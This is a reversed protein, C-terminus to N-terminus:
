MGTCNKLIHILENLDSSEGASLRQLMKIADELDVPIQSNPSVFLDIHYSVKKDPMFGGEPSTDDENIEYKAISIPSRGLIDRTKFTLFLVNGNDYILHGSTHYEYSISGAILQNIVLQYDTGEFITNEKKAEILEVRDPDYEIILELGHITYPSSLTVPIVFTELPNKALTIPDSQHRTRKRKRSHNDPWNGTIDGLRVATFNIESRDEKLDVITQTSAYDIEYDNIPVSWHACDTITESIFAWHLNDTNLETILGASYRAVMSTDMSSTDANLSVDAAILQYCGLTELGVISRALKSADMPSISEDMTDPIRNASIIYDGTPIDTLEYQGQSDTQTELTTPGTLIIDVKDIPFNDKFYSVKGSLSFRVAEVNVTVTSSISAETDSLEIYIQCTGYQNKQLTVTMTLEVTGTLGPVISYTNDPNPTLGSGTFTVGTYAILSNNSTSAQLLLTKSDIDSVTIQTQTSKNELMELSLSGVLIEPPDNVNVVTLSFSDSITANELDSAKVKIHYQGLDENSPTGSFIAGDPNFTLWSPLQQGNTQQATFTLTDNEDIDKFADPIAYEFSADEQITQSVLPNDIVPPDNKPLVTITITAANSDATGDNAKFTLIQQGSYDPDPTYTFEGTNNNIDLEGSPQDVISFTLINTEDIDSAQLVYTGSTDEDLSLNGDLAIPPDNYDYLRILQAAAINGSNGSDFAADALIDVTVLGQNKPVVLCNYRDDSGSFQDVTGNSVSLDSDDFGTVSTSFLIEVPIPSTDTTEPSSSTLSVTPRDSSYTRQLTTSQQNGNGASDFAKDSSLSVSIEGQTSPVLDVTYTQALGSDLDVAILNTAVANIPNLDSLTFQEVPESFVVSIPIPAESVQTSTSSMLEVTPSQTDYKLEITQATDNANGALDTFAGIPITITLLGENETIVDFAAMQESIMLNSINAGQTQIDTTDLGLISETSVLSVPIPTQNSANNPVSQLEFSPPQIDYTLILTNSSQNTNGSKSFVADEPISVSLQGEGQPSIVFNFITDSGTIEGFLTANNMVIDAPELNEVPSTFTATCAIESQNTMTITGSSILVDPRTLDYIRILPESASNGNGAQDIAANEAVQVSIEGQGPPILEFIFHTAYSNELDLAYFNQVTGYTVIDSAEFGKVPENFTITMPIPSINTTENTSSTIAISPGVSDFIRILPDSADNGNGAQDFGVNEPIVIQVEGQDQPVVTIMYDNGTNNFSSIESVNVKQIDSEDFEQVPESFSITIDFSPSNISSPTESKLAVQPPDPDYIRTLTESSENGNGAVDVAKNEPISVSIEGAGAPSVVLTYRDAEGNLSEVSCNNVFIDSQSLDTVPESFFLDISISSENTQQPAQSSISVSPPITDLYLTAIAKTRNDARDRYQVYITKVGQGETLEWVKPSMLPEWEGGVGHATNSIYMEIANTAGLILAVLYSTAYPDSMLVPNTPAKSDIRIPGFTSTPGIEDEDSTAAIHFYVSIDDVSGYNTSVTEESDIPKISLTNEETFTFYQEESFRTYYGGIGTSNSPPRWSMEIRDNKSPTNIVHSVSRLSQVVDPTVAFTNATGWIFVFCIVAFIVSQYKM